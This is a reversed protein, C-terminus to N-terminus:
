ASGHVDGQQDCRRGHDNRGHRSNEETLAETNGLQTDNGQQDKEDVQRQFLFTIGFDVFSPQDKAQKRKDKLSADTNKLLYMLARHMIIFCAYKQENGKYAREYVTMDTRFLTEFFQVKCFLM